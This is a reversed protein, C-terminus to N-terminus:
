MDDPIPVLSFNGGSTQRQPAMWLAVGDIRHEHVVQNDFNSVEKVIDGVRVLIPQDHGRLRLQYLECRLFDDGAVSPSCTLLLQDPFRLIYFRTVGASLHVHTHQSSLYCSQAPTSILAEM